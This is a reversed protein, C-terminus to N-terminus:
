SIKDLEPPVSNSLHVTPNPNCIKLESESVLSCLKQRIRIQERRPLKKITRAMSLYFLETEDAAYNVQQITSIETLIRNNTKMTSILQDLSHEGKKNSNNHEDPPKPIQFNDQIQYDNVDIDFVESKPSEKTNMIVYRANTDESTTLSLVDTPYIYEEGDTSSGSSDINSNMRRGDLFPKLFSLQYEFRWPSIKHAAEGSKLSRRKIANTFANRLKTWDDKCAQWPLGMAKGIEEWAEQRKSANRYDKEHVNYLVENQRVLEILNEVHVDNTEVKNGCIM